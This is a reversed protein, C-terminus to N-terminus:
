SRERGAISDNNRVSFRRRLNGGPDNEFIVGSVVGITRVLDAIVDPRDDASHLSLAEMAVICDIEGSGDASRYVRRSSTSDDQSLGIPCPVSSVPVIDDDRMGVPGLSQISM